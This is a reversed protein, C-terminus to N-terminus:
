NDIVYNEMAERVNFELSSPIDLENCFQIYNANEPDDYFNSLYTNVLLKVADRTADYEIGAKTLEHYYLIGYDNDGHFIHEMEHALQLPQQKYSYWSENMVITKKSPDCAPPTYPSFLDSWRVLIGNHECIKLLSDLLNDM